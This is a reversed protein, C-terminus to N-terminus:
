QNKLIFYASVDYNDGQTGAFEQTLELEFTNSKAPIKDVEFDYFTDNVSNEGTYEILSAHTGKPLIEVGGISLAVTCGKLSQVASSKNVVLLIGTVTAYDERLTNVLTVTRTSPDLIINEKQLFRKM